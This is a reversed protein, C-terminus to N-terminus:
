HRGIARFVRDIQDRVPGSGLELPADPKLLYYLLFLAQRPETVFLREVEENVRRALAVDGVSYHLWWRIDALKDGIDSITGLLDALQEPSRAGPCVACEQVTPRSMPQHRWPKGQEDLVTMEKLWQDVQVYGWRNGADYQTLGQLLQRFRESLNPPYPIENRSHAGRITEPLAANAFPSPGGQLLHILTFGLAYFDTKVSIEGREAYEPAAYDITHRRFTGSFQSTTPDLSRLISSIGFDTLVVEPPNGQNRFLLNGPKLDRHVIKHDHCYHLGEIIQRLYGQLATEGFPMHDALSGGACFEMVECYRKEWFQADLIRVIHPHSLGTLEAMVEPKPQFGLAYLKVVVYRHPAHAGAQADICGYLEGEGSQPGLRNQVEYRGAIREGARLQTAISPAGGSYAATASEGGQRVGTDAASGPPQWPQTPPAKGGKGPPVWQDTPPAKGGKGPPVWQDTPKGGRPVEGDPRNM